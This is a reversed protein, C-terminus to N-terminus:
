NGYDTTNLTIQDITITEDLTDLAIIKSHEKENPTAYDTYLSYKIYANAIKQSDGNKNKLNVLWRGKPFNEIDFEKIMLGNSLDSLIQEQNNQITHDWTFYKNDPNVFQLEFQLAPDNWEFVLRYDKKFKQGLFDAPLDEFNVKSKYFALLRKLENEATEQLSEFDLGEINNALITKYLEFSEKFNKHKLHVHALDRYSQIDNPAISLIHKYLAVALEHQELDQLAYGVTRLVQTNQPAKAVMSLITELAFVPDREKFFSYGEMYFDLGADTDTKLLNLYIEKEGSPNTAKSLRKLLDSSELDKYDLIEKPDYDNNKALLTAEKETVTTTPNDAKTKVNIVGGAGLSGYINTATLSSSTTISIINQADIQPLLANENQRFIVGDIIILPPQPNLISANYTRPFIYVERRTIPDFFTQINSERRLVDGLSLAAVPIDKEYLVNNKYGVANENRKGTPTDVLREEDKKGLVVVQELMEFTPHLLIDTKGEPRVQVTQRKMGPFEVTLSDGSTTAIHYTGNSSTQTNRYTGQVTVTAGQLAIISDGQKFQVKGSALFEPITAVPEEDIFHTFRKTIEKVTEKSGDLIDGDSYIVLNDLADFNAEPNTTIVFVPAPFDPVVDSLFTQGATVLLIASNKTNSEPRPLADIQGFGHFAGERLYELIADAKGQQMYFTKQGRSQTSFKTVDVQAEKTKDLINELIDLEKYINRSSQSASVDWYLTIHNPLDRKNASNGKKDPTSIELEFAMTTEDVLKYYGQSRDRVFSIGKTRSGALSFGVQRGYVKLLEIGVIIDEHVVIHNKELPITVLGSKTDLTYQISEQLLNRGVLGRDVDYVNVRILLSDSGNELVKFKLNHLKTNKRRVNVKTLIEGGLSTIDKWYGIIREDYDLDGIVSKRRKSEGLVLEDLRYQEPILSIKLPKLIGLLIENKSFEQAKYGVVSFQLRDISELKDPSFELTYNGYEDSVTGIGKGVFGINAFPIPLQTKADIVQGKLTVRSGYRIGQANLCFSLTFLLLLTCYRKKM